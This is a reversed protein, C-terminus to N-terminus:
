NEKPVPLTSYVKGEAKFENYTDKLMKKMGPGIILRYFKPYGDTVIVGDYPLLTAELMAPLRLGAMAALTEWTQMFNQVRYAADEGILVGGSKLNRELTFSGRVFNKWDAVTERDEPSLAKGADSELYEDILEPHTWVTDMIESREADSGDDGYDDSQPNTIHMKDNAYNGLGALLRYFRKSKEPGLVM